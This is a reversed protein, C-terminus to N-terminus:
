EISEELARRDADSMTNPDIESVIRDFELAAELSVGMEVAEEISKLREGMQHELAATDAALDEMDIGPDVGIVYDMLIAKQTEKTKGILDKVPIFVVEKQVVVYFSKGHLGAAKKENGFWDTGVSNKIIADREKPSAGEYVKGDKGLVEGSKLTLASTSTASIALCALSAAFALVSKKKM